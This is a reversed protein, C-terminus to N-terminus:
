TRNRGIWEIVRLANIAGLGSDDPMTAALLVRALAVGGDLYGAAGPLLDDLDVSGVAERAARPDAAAAELVLVRSDAGGIGGGMGAQVGPGPQTLVLANPPAVGAGVAERLFSTPVRDDGAFLLGLASRPLDVAAAREALGGITLSTTGNRLAMAVTGA